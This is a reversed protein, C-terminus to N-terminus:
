PLAGPTPTQAADPAANPKLITVYVRGDATTVSPTAGPAVPGPLLFRSSLAYASHDDRRSSRVTLVRSDLSLDLTDPDVRDLALVYRDPLQTLSLAPRSPAAPFAATDDDFLARIRADLRRALRFPDDPFLSPSPAFFPRPTPLLLASPFSPSPALSSATAPGSAPDGASDEASSAAPVVDGPYLFPSPAGSTASTDLSPPVEASPELVPIPQPPNRRRYSSAGDGSVFMNWLIVVQLLLIAALLIKEASGARSSNSPFSQM